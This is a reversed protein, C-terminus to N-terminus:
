LEASIRSCTCFITVPSSGSRGHRDGVYGYFLGRGIMDYGYGALVETMSGTGCGLDLVLRVGYEEPLSRIYRGWEEYPINDMFADYVRPLVRILM